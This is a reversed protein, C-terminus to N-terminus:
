QYIYRLWKRRAAGVLGLIGTGFLLLSSPEPTNVAQVNLDLTEGNADFFSSTNDVFDGNSLLMTPLPTTLFPSAPVNTILDLNVAQTQIGGYADSWNFAGVLAEITGNGLDSYFADSSDNIAYTNGNITLAASISNDNSSGSYYTGGTIFSPNAPDDTTYYRTSDLTVTLTFPAGFLNGGGFYGSGDGAVGSNDASLVTGVFTNTITDAAAPRAGVLLAVSAIAIWKLM